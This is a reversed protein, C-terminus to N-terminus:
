PQANDRELDTFDRRVQALRNRYSEADGYDFFFRYRDHRSPLSRAHRIPCWYQETRAAVERVYSIIGNFYGCYLCNVKEILNLYKLQHRDMIVHDSRKAKPIGYIPFCLWQYFTVILDMIVCPVLASWIVPVTLITMVGSERVYTSWKAALLKHRAKIGAQFRVKNNELTYFLEHQRSEMERALRKELAEIHDLIDDISEM